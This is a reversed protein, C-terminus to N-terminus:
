EQQSGAMMLGRNKQRIEWRHIFLASILLIGGLVLLTAPTFLFHDEIRQSPNSEVSTPQSVPKPFNYPLPTQGLLSNSTNILSFNGDLLIRYTYLRAYLQDECTWAWYDNVLVDVFLAASGDKM